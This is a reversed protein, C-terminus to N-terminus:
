NSDRVRQLLARYKDKSIGLEQRQKELSDAGEVTIRGGRMQRKIAELMAAEQGACGPASVDSAVTQGGLITPVICVRFGINDHASGDDCGMRSASRCSKADFNSCGGRIIHKTSPTKGQCFVDADLYDTCWDLCHELVNGHMDFIGWPNPAKQAVPQPDDGDSNGKFWGLADLSPGAYPGTTGARCAYEWQAETPLSVRWGSPVLELANLKECFEVAMNWSVRNAPMGNKKYRDLARPNEGTVANWQEYTITTRGMLFGCAFRVPVRRDIGAKHQEYNLKMGEVMGHCEEEERPSGMMFSGAPCGCFDLVVPSKPIRLLVVKNAEPETRFQALDADRQSLENQKLTRLNLSFLLEYLLRGEVFHPELNHSPASSLDGTPWSNCLIAMAQQTPSGDSKADITPLFDSIEQQVEPIEGTEFFHDLLGAVQVAQAEASEPFLAELNSAEQQHGYSCGGIFQAIAETDTASFSQQAQSDVLTAAGSGLLLGIGRYFAAKLLYKKPSDFSFAQSERLAGEALAILELANGHKVSLAACLVLLSAIDLDSPYAKHLVKLAKLASLQAEPSERQCLQRMATKFKTRDLMSLRKDAPKLQARTQSLIKDQEAESIGLESGVHKLEAIEERSLIGDTLVAQVRSRFVEIANGTKKQRCSSCMMTAQDFYDLHVWSSCSPCTYGEIVRAQRGSVTCVRVARTEDQNVVTTNTIHQNGSVLNKTPGGHRDSTGSSLVGSLNGTAVVNTTNHQDGSVINKVSSGGTATPRVHHLSDSDETKPISPKTCTSGCEDCFTNDPVDIGYRECAENPCFM